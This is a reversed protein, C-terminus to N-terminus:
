CIRKKHFRNGALTVLESLSYLYDWQGRETECYLHNAFVTEWQRALKEPIRIFETQRNMLTELRDKWDITEWDGVPAWFLDRPKTQKIWVLDNDWAWLLDYEEAWGWINVFSYDSAMQPYKAFFTLYERKKRLSKPEFQLRMGKREVGGIRYVSQFMVM